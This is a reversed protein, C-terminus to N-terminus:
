YGPPKRFAGTIHALSESFALLEEDLWRRGVVQIGLPLPSDVLQTLPVVVVPHGTLNFV